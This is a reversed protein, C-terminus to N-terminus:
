YNRFTVVLFKEKNKEFEDIAKEYDNHRGIDLWYDKSPYGIVREKYKLLKKVLDPL